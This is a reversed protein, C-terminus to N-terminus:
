GHRAPQVTGSRSRLMGLTWAKENIEGGLPNDLDLTTVSGREGLAQRDHSSLPQCLLECIEMFEQNPKIIKHSYKIDRSRERDAEAGLDPRIIGKMHVAWEYLPRRGPGKVIVLEELTEPDQRTAARMVDVSGYSPHICAAKDENAWSVNM